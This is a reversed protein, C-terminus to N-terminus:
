RDAMGFRVGTRLVNFRDFADRGVVPLNARLTLSLVWFSIGQWM